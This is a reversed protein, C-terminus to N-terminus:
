QKKQVKDKLSIKKLVDVYLANEKKKLRESLTAITDNPKIKEFCRGLVPGFDFDKTLLHNTCGAYTSKKLLFNKVASNIMKGKNWLAKTGDPNKVVSNITDPILGPHTNLIKNPFAKLIDDPIIQKWGALCVYDVKHDKLIKLLNQNKKLVLSKIKHKKARGLGYADKKDAIVLSIQINIKENEIGDIIAQLNTGTGKNSILVAIKILPNELLESPYFPNELQFKSETGLIPIKYKGTLCATCFPAKQSDFNKTVNNVGTAKLLGNLSLYAISDAGLFEKIKEFDVDNKENKFKNALLEKSTPTDVGYFCPNTIPPCAIRIHVKKAGYTRLLTIFDRLTSGRVISDDVVIVDKGKLNVAMPGFKIKIGLDRTRQDPQIFTRGIYRNQIVGEGYPIKSKNAYAIAATMGSNPIAMVMDAKVPSEEVLIQGCRERVKGISIKNFTSDPRALYIYEFICSAHRKVGQNYFSKPGNKDIIVAEGPRVERIKKAGIGPFICDESSLVWGGNLEGLILPRVGYPDRIGFLLDRTAIVFSYAGKLLPLVEDFREEWTNKKSELLLAGVIETDTTSTLKTNKIRRKIDLSNILNGNHAIVIQRNNDKLLFPQANCIQSSGTTSYRNHGIAIVGKGLREINKETKFVDRVLGMGRKLKFRRGNTVAIGASEQGRHQLGYLAYYTIRAVDLKENYIGFVGCKDNMRDNKNKLFNSQHSDKSSNNNM